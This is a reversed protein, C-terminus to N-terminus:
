VHDDINRENLIHSLQIPLRRVHDCARCTAPGMTHSPLTPSGIAPDCLNRRFEKLRGAESTRVSLRKSTVAAAVLAYNAAPVANVIELTCESFVFLQTHM